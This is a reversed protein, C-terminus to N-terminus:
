ELPVIDATEQLFTLMREKLGALAEALAPDEIRNVLEGPDEALDYLEDREYLRRVYKFRDTRVMTARTHEPGESTQLNLRPWYADEPDVSGRAELEMCHREGRLRGGESFVADRHENTDGRLLPLLSRGFHPHGPTIDAMAEVTAPFDTLEVLADSIHPKVELAGPPKITFLVNTLSDQFTNQNKEVLGYDGTFDGHDSLVFIGTNDYVNRDRLADILLGLHHDVRSCMGLYTARLETWREENWNQMGLREYTRRVMGPLMTWDGPEPVRTPVKARDIASYWPDEVMYPPHPYAVNIYVCFPKDAPAERIFDAAATVSDWDRDFHSHGDAHEIRGGYFSYYNDGGKPGRREGFDPFWPHLPRDPEHVHSAFEDRPVAAACTNGLNDGCWVYYGARKLTKLLMPEDPQLKFAQTRHGRVHPYWGTMFSCRSPVCVTNQCFAYRFSIGDEAAIRDLNPTQAAPNGLHGTGWARFTDSVFVLFNPQRAM